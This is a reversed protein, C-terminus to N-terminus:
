RLIQQLKKDLAEGRINREMIRGEKDILFTTPVGTIGFHTQAIRDTENDILQPWKLDHQEIANLWKEPDRDISIGVIQFGDQHYKEYIEKYEPIAAICPGCWSAWFNILVYQGLFNHFPIHEGEHNELIFDAVVNGVASRQIGKLLNGTRVGFHSEQMDPTLLAYLEERSNLDLHNGMRDLLFPSVLLGPHERIINEIERGLAESVLNRDEYREHLIAWKERLAAYLEHSLSGSVAAGTFGEEIDLEISINGPEDILVGFPAYGRRVRTDYTSFFLHRTPEKFPRTITFRGDIIEASDRENTLNNYLHVRHGEWPGTVTGEFVIEGPKEPACAALLLFMLPLLVLLSSFKNLYTHM